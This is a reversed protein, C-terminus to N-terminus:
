VSGTLGYRALYNQMSPYGASATGTSPPGSPLPLRGLGGNTLSPPQGGQYPPPQGVIPKGGPFGPAVPPLKPAAGGGSGVGQRPARYLIKGPALQPARAAHIAGSALLNNYATLYANQQGTGYTAAAAAEQNSLTSLLNQLKSYANQMNGAYLRQAEGLGSQLGGGYTTGFRAAAQRAAANQQQNQQALLSVTSYPNAQAAGATLRDGQVLSPDGFQILQQRRADDIGADTTDRNLALQALTQQYGPDGTIAARNEAAARQGTVFRALSSTTFAQPSFTKGDFRIAGGPGVVVHPRSLLIHALRLADQPGHGSEIFANRVNGLATQIAKQRDMRSPRPKGGGGGNGRGQGGHTPFGSPQGGVGRRPPRPLYRNPVTAM